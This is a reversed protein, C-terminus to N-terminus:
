IGKIFTNVGMKRKNVMCSERHKIDKQILTAWPQKISVARLDNVDPLNM